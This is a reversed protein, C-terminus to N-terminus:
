QQPHAPMHTTKTYIHGICWCKRQSQVICVRLWARHTDTDPELTGALSQFLVLLKLVWGAAVLELVDPLFVVSHGVFVKVWLGEEVHM